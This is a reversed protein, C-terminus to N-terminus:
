EGSDRRNESVLSSGSLMVAQAFSAQAEEDRHEAQAIMGEGLWALM